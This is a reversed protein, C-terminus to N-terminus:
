TIAQGATKASAAAPIGADMWRSVAANPKSKGGGITTVPLTLRPTGQKKKAPASGDDKEPPQQQSERDVVQPVAPGPKSTKSDQSAKPAAGGRIQGAM